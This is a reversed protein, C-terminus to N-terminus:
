AEADIRCASQWFAAAFGYAAEMGFPVERDEFKESFELGGPEKHVVMVTPRPGGPLASVFDPSNAPATDPDMDRLLQFKERYPNDELGIKTDTRLDEYAQWVDYSRTVVVLSDRVQATSILTNRVITNAALTAMALKLEAAAEAKTPKALNARGPTAVLNSAASGDPQVHDTDFFDQGDYTPLNRKMPRYAELVKGIAFGAGIKGALEQASVLADDFSSEFRDFGFTIEFPEIEGELSASFVRQITKKDLWRRMEPFAAWWELTFRKSANPRSVQQALLPLLALTPEKDYVDLAYPTVQRAITKLQDIGLTM